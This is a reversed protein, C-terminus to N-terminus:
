KEKEGEEDLRKQLKLRLRYIADTQETPNQEKADIFELGIKAQNKRLELHPLLQRLLRVANKDKWKARYQGDSTPTIFAGRKQLLEMLKFRKSTIWVLLSAGKEETTKRPSEIKISGAIDLAAAIYSNLTNTAESAKTEM